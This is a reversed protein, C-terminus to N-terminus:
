RGSATVSSWQLRTESDQAASRQVDARQDPGAHQEHGREGDLRGPGRRDERPGRQQEERRREREGERREAHPM